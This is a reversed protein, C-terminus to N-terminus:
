GLRDDARAPRVLLWLLGAPWVTREVVVPVITTTGAGVVAPAAPPEAPTTPAAVPALPTPPPAPQRLRIWSGLVGRPADPSDGLHAWALLVPAGDVVRIFSPDPIELAAQLLAAKNAADPERSQALRAALARIDDYLRELRQEAATRAAPDLAELPQAEGARPAYWDTTRGDPNPM